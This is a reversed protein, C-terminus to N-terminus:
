NFANDSSIKLLCLVRVVEGQGFPLLFNKTYGWIVFSLADAALSPLKYCRKSNGLRQNITVFNRLFHNVANFDNGEYQM